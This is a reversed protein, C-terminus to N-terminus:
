WNLLKDLDSGKKKRDVNENTDLKDVIEQAAAALYELQKRQALSQKIYDYVVITSEPQVIDSLGLMKADYKKVVSCFVFASDRELLDTTYGASKSFLDLLEQYTFQLQEASAQNKNVLIEGSQFGSKEKKSDVILQNVTTKKEKFRKYIDNAKVRAGEGDTGKPILVVFLKAMDTWVFSAKNLEYFARIEEDSPAVNQLENKRQSIIYQQAILQNKLYAKYEAVSMGSQQKMFEELSINMASQIERELEQQTLGPNYQQQAIQQLFNQDVASDPITIGAKQAAQAVLREQIMSELVKKRDDLSLSIHRQMQYAEVRTKLQKVTISESKNLKVVALVQLDSQAFVVAACFVAYLVLPLRKM